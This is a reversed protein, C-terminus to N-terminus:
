KTLPTPRLPVEGTEWWHRADAGSVSLDMRRLKAGQECLLVPNHVNPDIIVHNGLALGYERMRDLKSRLEDLSLADKRFDVVEESVWLYGEGRPIKTESCPCSNDSCLGDAKPVACEFSMHSRIINAIEVEGFCEALSLVTEGDEDRAEVEAGVDLLRKV